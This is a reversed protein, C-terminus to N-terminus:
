VNGRDPLREGRNAGRRFISLPEDDHQFRSDYHDHGQRYHRQQIAQQLRLGLRRVSARLPPQNAFERM